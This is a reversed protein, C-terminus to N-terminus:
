LCAGFSGVLTAKTVTQKLDACREPGLPFDRLLVPLISDFDMVRDFYGTHVAAPIDRLRGMLRQLFVQAPEVGGQAARYLVRAIATGQAYAMSVLIRRDSGLSNAAAQLDAGALIPVLAEDLARARSAKQLSSAFFDARGMYLSAFVDALGENWGRMVVDNLFKPGAGERDSNLQPSVAGYFLNELASIVPAGLIIQLPGVVQHQFHAHFHEHAVIGHNVAFPVGGLTYPLLGIVDLATFYHANNYESGDGASLNLEVGVRRPWPIQQATGLTKEFQYLREFQAYVSLAVSSKSDLPVYVHGSHTLRPRALHGSFGDDSFGPEVYIEAAEGRTEYPSNLTSITVEQLSYQANADAWPLLYTAESASKRGCGSLVTLAALSGLIWKAM